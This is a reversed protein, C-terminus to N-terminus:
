RASRILRRAQKREKVSLGAQVGFPHTFAPAKRLADSLCDDLVTCGSCVTRCAEVQQQGQQGTQGCPFFLETLGRCAAEEHWGPSPDRDAAARLRDPDAWSPPM